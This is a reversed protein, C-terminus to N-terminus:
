ISLTGIGPLYTRCKSIKAGHDHIHIGTHMKGHQDSGVLKMLIQMMGDM